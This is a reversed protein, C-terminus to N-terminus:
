SLKKLHIIFRTKDLVKAGLPKEWNNIMYISPLDTPGFHLKANCLSLTKMYKNGGRM